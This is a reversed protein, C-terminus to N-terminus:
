SLSILIDHMQQVLRRYIEYGFLLSSFIILVYYEMKSQCSSGIANCM